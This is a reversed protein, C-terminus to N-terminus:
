PQWLSARQTNEIHGDSPSIEWSCIYRSFSKTKQGPNRSLIRDVTRHADIILWRGARGNAIKTWHAGFNSRLSPLKPLSARFVNWFLICWTKRALNNLLGSTEMLFIGIWLAATQTQHLTCSGPEVTNRWILLAGCQAHGAEISNYSQNLCVQTVHAVYHSTPVRAHSHM